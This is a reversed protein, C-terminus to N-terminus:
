VTLRRPRSKTFQLMEPLMKTGVEVNAISHLAERTESGALRLSDLTENKHSETCRGTSAAAEDIHGECRSMSSTVRRAGLHVREAMNLARLRMEHLSEEEVPISKLRVDVDVKKPLSASTVLFRRSGYLHGLLLGILLGALLFCAPVFVIEFMTNEALSDM